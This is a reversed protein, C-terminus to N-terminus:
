TFPQNEAMEVENTERISNIRELSEFQEARTDPTELARRLRGARPPATVIRCPAAPHRAPAAAAEGVTLIAAAMFMDAVDISVLGTIQQGSIRPLPGPPAGARDPRVAPPPHQGRGRGSGPGEREAAPHHGRVESCSGGGRVGSRRGKVQEWHSFHQVRIDEGFYNTGTM